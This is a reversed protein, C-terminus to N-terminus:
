RRGALERRVLHREPRRLIGRCGVAGLRAASVAVRGLATGIALVADVRSTKLERLNEPTYRCKINRGAFNVVAEAGDFSQIWEGSNKGDWFVEKAGDNRARPSRTLVVVEYDRAHLEKALAGGLFGSGGALVVRKKNM